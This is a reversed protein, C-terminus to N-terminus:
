PKKLLQHQTIFLSLNESQIHKHQTTIMVYALKLRDLFQLAHQIPMVSAATAYADLTSNNLYPSILTLSAIQQQSRQHKPDILHNHQTSGVYRRYNGSTSIATHPNRTRFHILPTTGFPDEIAITCLDLCRIDGSAAIIGETIHHAQYLATVKDIAFGKGMGGLDLTINKPTIARHPTLILANANLTAQQLAEPTTQRQNTGFRYLKKTVAGVSIDFYGQTQVYYDQSLRLAEYTDPAISVNHEHNLRYIDGYQQFSSLARDVEKIRAFGKEIWAKQHSPLTITILTGMHIQTRSYQEQATLIFCYCCSLLLLILM